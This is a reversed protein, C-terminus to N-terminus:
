GGQNDMRMGQPIAPQYEFSFRSQFRRLVRLTPMGLLFIMLGNGIARMTDWILSTATYYTMFHGIAEKLSIGFVWFQEAAGTIFPYTWLNMMAGFLFGWLIGFGTLLVIEMNATSSRPQIGSKQSNSQSKLRHLIDVLPRCIPATMGVWGATFMQGPLWPGVGGTIIASVLLTLAGMLFGFRGGYAYGTIIILFFVPSFGGPGPIANEIFRLAANMAVLVGLLAIVKTNVAQGQVEYLMVLLCLSLIFSILIPPNLAIGQNIHDNQVIGVMLFPYLMLLLGAIAILFYLILSIPDTKLLPKNM